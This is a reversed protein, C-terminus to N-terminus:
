FITSLFRLLILRDKSFYFNRIGCVCVVVVVVVFLCVM